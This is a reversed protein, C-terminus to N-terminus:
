PEIDGNQPAKEIAEPVRLSGAIRPGPHPAREREGVFGGEVVEARKDRAM